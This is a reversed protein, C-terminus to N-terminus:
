AAHETPTRVSITSGTETKTVVVQAPVRDRLERVHSVIGVTRGGARLDDLVAMVQELSQDDLSGFGEDVFLTQLEIGGSDQRVAEGLGLALALSALFSEGGSLTAPERTQGTWADHVVLGLGSRLGGKAREDSHALEFRGESMVALRENALRTVEELRAALVYSSLRMKKLNDGGGNVVDALATVREHRERLPALRTAATELARAVERLRGLARQTTVMVVQNDRALTATTRATARLADLDPAEVALAEVVDQRELVASARERRAHREHQTRELEAIREAPRWATDAAEVDAFAHEALLADLDSQARRDLLKAQVLARQATSAVRLRQEVLDHRGDRSLDNLDTSAASGEVCVCTQDHRTLLADAREDLEDLRARERAVDATHVAVDREVQAREAEAARLQEAVRRRQTLAQEARRASERALEVQHASTDELQALPGAVEEARIAEAWDSAEDLARCSTELQARGAALRERAAALEGERRRYEDGADRARAEAREVEDDTVHASSPAAPEPHEVSGCVPCAEGPQLGEALTAALHGLRAGRLRLVESEAEQFAVASTRHTRESASVASAAARVRDHQARAHQVLRAREDAAALEAVATAHDAQADALEDLRGQLDAVLSTQVDRRSHSSTLAAESRSVARRAAQHERVVMQHQRLAERGAEVSALWADYSVRGDAVVDTALTFLTDAQPASSEVDDTAELSTALHPAAALLSRDATSAEDRARDLEGRARTAAVASARVYAARRAGDLEIRQAADAERDSELAATEQQAEVGLRRLEVAREAATVADRARDAATEAHEAEAMAVTVAAGVRTQEAELRERLAGLPLSGWETVDTVASDDPVDSLVGQLQVVAATMAASADQVATASERRQEALWTELDLFRDIDFLHRLVRGRDDPRAQLFAAFQGQPLLVVQAFQELGMGLGQGIFDGVEDNRHSVGVWGSSTRESLVVKAQRRTTGTGRKKPALHEPSRDLRLRRGSLTLELVVRPEAGAPAHDSRLSDRQGRRAGPLQGFLAFCIADLITTKGAGTAGHILHLGHASLADFDIEEAAAFPGFAEIRLHHLRM